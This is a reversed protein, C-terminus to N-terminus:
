VINIGIGTAVDKMAEVLDEAPAGDSYITRQPALVGVSGVVTEGSGRIPVGLCAIQGHDTVAFGQEAVTELRTQLEDREVPLERAHKALPCDFECGTDCSLLGYRSVVSEVTESDMASLIALGPGNCHLYRRTGQSLRNKSILDSNTRSYLCYGYGHEPTMVTFVGEFNEALADIRPKGEEFLERGRISKNCVDLVRLGVAFEGTDLKTVYGEERLTSVYNSVTGKSVGLHDALAGITAGEQEKLVEILEMTRNASQVPNTPADPPSRQPVRYGQDSEGAESSTQKSM